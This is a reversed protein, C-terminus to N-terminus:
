MRKSPCARDAHIAAPSKEDLQTRGLLSIVRKSHRTAGHVGFRGIASRFQRRLWGFILDGIPRNHLVDFASGLESVQTM